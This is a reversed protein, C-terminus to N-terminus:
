IITRLKAESMKSETTIIKQYITLLNAFDLDIKEPTDAAGGLAHESVFKLQTHMTPM